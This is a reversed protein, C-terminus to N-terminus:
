RVNNLYLKLRAHDHLRGFWVDLMFLEHVSEAIGAANEIGLTRAHMLLLRSVISPLLSNTLNSCSFDPPTQALLTDSPAREGASPQLCFRQRLNSRPCSLSSRRARQPSALFQDGDQEVVVIEQRNASNIKTGWSDFLIVVFTM